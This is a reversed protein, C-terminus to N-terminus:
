VAKGGSHPLKKRGEDHRQEGSVVWCGEVGWGRGGPTLRLDGRRMEGSISRAFVVIATLAFLRQAKSPM